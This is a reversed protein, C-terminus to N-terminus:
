AHLSSTCLRLGYALGYDAQLLERPVVRGFGLHFSRGCILGVICRVHTVALLERRQSSVYAFPVSAGTVNRVVILGDRFLLWASSLRREGVFSSLNEVRRCITRERDQISYIFRRNM